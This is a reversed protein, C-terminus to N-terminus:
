GETPPQAPAAPAAPASAPTPAPKIERLILIDTGTQRDLTWNGALHNVRCIAKLAGTAQAQTAALQQDLAAIEAALEARRRAQAAQTVVVTSSIENFVGLEEPSLIYEM